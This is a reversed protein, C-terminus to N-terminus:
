KNFIQVYGTKPEKLEPGELIYYYIGDPHGGGNWDNHYDPSKYVKTGWRNFVTLASGPFYDLNMFELLDNKGDGNPTFVNPLMLDCFIFEVDASDSVTACQNTVDVYYTGNTTPQISIGTGGTNWLFTEDPKIGKVTLLLVDFSCLSTDSLVPHPDDLYEITFTQSVNCVLDSITLQYDGVVSVSILPNM